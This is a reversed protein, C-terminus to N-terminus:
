EEPRARERRGLIGGLWGGVCAVPLCYLIAVVELPRRWSEEFDSFLVDLLKTTPLDLGPALSCLDFLLQVWGLVAFGFWWDRSGAPGFRARFAGVVLVLVTLDFAATWWPEPSSRVHALGLGLGGIALMTGRITIRFGVLRGGQRTSPVVFPAAQGTAPRGRM